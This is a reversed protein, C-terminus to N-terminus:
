AVLSDHGSRFRLELSENPSSRTLDFRIENNRASFNDINVRTFNEFSHFDSDQVSPNAIHPRAGLMRLAICRLNEVRPLKVERRSEDVPVGVYGVVASRVFVQLSIKRM